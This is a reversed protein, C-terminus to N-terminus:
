ITFRGIKICCLSQLSTTKCSRPECIHSFNKESILDTERDTNVDFRSGKKLTDGIVVWYTKTDLIETTPPCLRCIDWALWIQLIQAKAELWNFVMALISPWWISYSSNIEIGIFIPFTTVVSKQNNREGLTYLWKRQCSHNPNFHFIYFNQFHM